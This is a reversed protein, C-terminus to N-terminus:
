RRKRKSMIASEEELTRYIFRTARQCYKILFLTFHNKRISIFYIHLVAISMQAILEARKQNFPVLWAVNFQFRWDLKIFSASHPPLLMYSREANDGGGRAEM